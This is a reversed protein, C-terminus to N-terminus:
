PLRAKPPLFGAGRKLRFRTQDRILEVYKDPDKWRQSVKAPDFGNQKIIARLTSADLTRLWFGFEDEGKDKLAEFVDPAQIREGRRARNRPTTSRTSTVDGLVAELRTQFEPNNLAESLIVDV